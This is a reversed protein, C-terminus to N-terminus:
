WKSPKTITGRSDTLTAPFQCKQLTAERINRTFTAAARLQVSATRNPRSCPFVVGVPLQLENRVVQIPLVLDSDNSIVVAQEFDNRFADLLLMTALNVDSGKEETKVVTAFRPGNTPPRALPMSREHSLYHGYHVTLNATTELARIYVQQRQPQAGDGDGPITSVLATFYRIRGVKHKPLIAQALAALDLWRYATQKLSGYYLNFADVYINTKM